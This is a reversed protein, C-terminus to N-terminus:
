WGPRWGPRRTRPRAPVGVARGQMEDLGRSRSRDLLGAEARATTCRARAARSRKARRVTFRRALAEEWDRSTTPTSCGPRKRALLRAVMPDDRHPFEVVLSPASTPSCPSSRTSRCTTRSRSTTSSPSACRSSPGCGSSSRRGSRSAGARPGPSPDALDLVLPLIRQEGAARLERYLRDVVVDDSDVAVVSRAGAASPSARSGATTPASTSCWGAPPTRRRRRRGRVREKAALDRDTYHARDGYDSWTSGSSSGDCATSPRASTPAAPRRHAQARVRGAEARRPHRARPRRRRVPARRARAPPRPHVDGKRFRGRGGLMAAAVAPSIGDVRGACCRSSRRRRRDGARVAPQPVARLVPPLRGVARRPASARVVRRRHVGTPHRRVARQLGVRGQHDHGGGLAARTLSLQLRAADRLMEFAWEYPYSLVEVREHRLAGAWADAPWRM